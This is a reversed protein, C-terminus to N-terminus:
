LGEASAATKSTDTRHQVQVSEAKKREFYNELKTLQISIDHLMEAAHYWQKPSKFCHLDLCVAMKRNIRGLAKRISGCYASRECVPHDNLEAIKDLFNFFMQRLEEGVTYKTSRRFNVVCSEIYVDLEHAKRYIQMRGYSQKTM